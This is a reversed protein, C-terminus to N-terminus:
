WVHLHHIMFTSSTDYVHVMCTSSAGYMYVTSTGYKFRSM